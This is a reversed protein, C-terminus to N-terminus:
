LFHRENREGLWRQLAQEGRSGMLWCRKGAPQVSSNRLGWMGVSCVCSVSRPSPRAWCTYEKWRDFFYLTSAQVPWLEMKELRWLYWCDRELDQRPMAEAASCAPLERSRVMGRSSLPDPSAAIIFHQPVASLASLFAFSALGEDGLVSLPFSVACCSWLACRSSLPVKWRPEVAVQARQQRQASSKGNGCEQRCQLVTRLRRNSNVLGLPYFKWILCMGVPNWAWQTHVLSVYCGLFLVYVSLFRM